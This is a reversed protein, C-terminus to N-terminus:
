TATIIVLWVKVESFGFAKTEKFLIRRKETAVDVVM